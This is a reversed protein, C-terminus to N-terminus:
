AVLHGQMRVKNGRGLMVSCRSRMELRWDLEKDDLDQSDFDSSLLSYEEYFCDNQQQLYVVSPNGGKTRNSSDLFSGHLWPSLSTSWTVPPSAPLLILIPFTIVLSNTRGHPTLHLSFL